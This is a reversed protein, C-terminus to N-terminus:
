QPRQPVPVDGGAGWDRTAVERVYWRGAGPRFVAPDVTGDGTYDGAAPIDGSLGWAYTTFSAYQTSSLLVVWSGTSPRFVAFDLRGDGDFDAPVPLDGSLGWDRTISLTFESTSTRIFWRGLSPRYVAIDTRSDGDYDAPVVLDGGIGWALTPGGRVYWTGTSPRFVAAQSRGAGLYDGPVALDGAMGWDMVAGEGTLSPRVYWRGLASRFVAPDARGDGDFDSMAPQDSAHGGWLTNTFTTFASSSQLSWWVGTSPRYVTMDARRDGDMDGVVPVIFRPRAFVPLDGAAGIGVNQMQGTAPDLIYCTGTSPRFIGLDARGDGSFDLPLPLDGGAGWSRTLGGRVYWQGTAPRFVAADTTGNGDYDAPVPVDGAAGWDIAPQGMIYFRGETRRYVAIDAMGDGDYDGPVPVDTGRGWNRAFQDKVYWVGSSPRYVAMDVLGDGNYDAPVPVDGLAGWQVVPGDRVYWTGSAPRFIAIESVGDGNYDAAVPVDGPQGGWAIPTGGGDLHWTGAGPRYAAITAKAAAMLDGAVPPQTVVLTRGAITVTGRRFATAPGAAIVVTGSGAGSAGSIIRIWSDSTTASWPIGDLPTSVAIAQSGGARGFGVAGRSLTFLAGRVVTVSFSSEELSNVRVAIGNPADIFTEGPLWMAGADNPNGNGDVDVVRAPSGSTSTTTVRHLVIAQGPLRADYGVRQRAEVTYFTTTSGGIPIQAMLYNGGSLPSGLREIRITQSSEPPAVFKRAPAIWGLLDKHYAITHQAIYGYTADPYIYSSSMVDWASDYTQAYPGSSHPLGFGHGMEHAYVSQVAGWPAMWTARYGRGPQGDVTLYTAGGYSCCGLDENFQFNIGDFSPFYVFPDALAACDGAMLTLNPFGSASLYQTYTRPLVFPGYAASGAVNAIDFSQERWHHDLGPFGGGFMATFYSLPRRTVAPSSAFNCLITAWPRPGDVLPQPDGAVPLAGAPLVPEGPVLGTVRLGPSQGAGAAGFGPALGGRTLPEGTVSARRMHIASPGGAQELVGAAFTLAYAMGDDATLQVLLRADAALGPAPDGWTVTVTGAVTQFNPPQPATQAAPRVALAVALAAAGLCASWRAFRHSVTVGQRLSM